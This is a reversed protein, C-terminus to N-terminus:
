ENQEGIQHSTVLLEEVIERDRQRISHINFRQIEQEETGKRLRDTTLPDLHCVWKLAMKWAAKPTKVDKLLIDRDANAKIEKNIADLSRLWPKAVGHKKMRAHKGKQIFAEYERRASGVRECFDKTSMQVADDVFKEQMDRPLSALEDGAKLSINGEELEKAAESCLRLLKLRKSVWHFSKDVMKALDAISMDEELMLIRLRRAYEWRHTEPRIANAKLQIVLVETDTLVRILCPMSDLGAAKAARFRYNGEVVEYKGDAEAPRVLIPQLIGDQRVSSLMEMFGLSKTNVVRLLVKPQILKDIPISRQDSM